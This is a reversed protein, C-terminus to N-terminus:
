QHMSLHRPGAARVPPLRFAYEVTTKYLRSAPQRNRFGRKRVAASFVNAMSSFADIFNTSRSDISRHDQDFVSITTQQLALDPAAQLGILLM